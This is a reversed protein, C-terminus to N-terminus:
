KSVTDTPVKSNSSMKPPVEGYNRDFNEWKFHMAAFFLREQNRIAVTTLIKVVCTM